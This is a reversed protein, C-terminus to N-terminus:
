YKVDVPVDRWEQEGTDSFWLQQLVKEQVHRRDEIRLYMTPQWVEPSHASSLGVPNSEKIKDHFLTMDMERLLMGNWDYFYVKSESYDLEITLAEPFGKEPYDDSDFYGDLIDLYVNNISM